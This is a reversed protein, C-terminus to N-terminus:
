LVELGTDRIGWTRLGPTSPTLVNSSMRIDPSQALDLKKEQFTSAQFQPVVLPLPIFSRRTLRGSKMPM